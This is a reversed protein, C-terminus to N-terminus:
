NDTQVLFLNNFTCNLYRNKIQCMVYHQASFWISIKIRVASNKTSMLQYIDKYRKKIIMWFTIKCM